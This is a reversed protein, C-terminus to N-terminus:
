IELFKKILLRMSDDSFRRYHKFSKKLETLTNMSAMRSKIVDQMGHEDAIRIIEAEDYVSNQLVTACVKKANENKFRSALKSLEEVMEFTIQSSDCKNCIKLFTHFLEPTHGEIPIELLVGSNPGPLNELFSKFSSTDALFVSSNVYFKKEGVLFAVDSGECRKTFDLSEKGSPIKISKVGIEVQLTIGDDNEGHFEDAVKFGAWLSQNGIFKKCTNRIIRNKATNKPHVVIIICDAEVESENSFKEAFCKLRFQVVETDEKRRAFVKLFFEGFTLKDCISCWDTTIKPWSFSCSFSKRGHPYSGTLEKPRRRVIRIRM